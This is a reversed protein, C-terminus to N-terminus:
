VSSQQDLRDRTPNKARRAGRPIVFMQLDGCASQTLSVDAMCRSESM